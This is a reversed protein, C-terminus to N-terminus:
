RWQSFSPLFDITAFFFIETDFIFYIMVAQSGTGWSGWLWGSASEARESESLHQWARACSWKGPRSFPRGSQWLATCVMRCPQSWSAPATPAAPAQGTRSAAGAAAGPLINCRKICCLINYTYTTGYITHKLHYACVVNYEVYSFNYCWHPEHMDNVDDVKRYRLFCVVDYVVAYTVDCTRNANSTRYGINISYRM